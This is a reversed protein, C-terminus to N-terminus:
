TVTVTLSILYKSVLHCLTQATACPLKPFVAALYNPSVCCHQHKSESVVFRIKLAFKDVHRTARQSDKTLWGFFFMMTALPRKQGVADFCIGRTVKLNVRGKVGHRRPNAGAEGTVKIPYPLLLHIFLYIYGHIFNVRPKTAPRPDFKYISTSCVIHGTYIVPHWM